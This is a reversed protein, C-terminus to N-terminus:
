SLWCICFYFYLSLSWVPEFGTRVVNARALYRFLLDFCMIFFWRFRQNASRLKTTYLYTAFKLLSWYGYQWLLALNSVIERFLFYFASSSITFLWNTYTPIFVVVSVDADHLILTRIEWQSWFKKKFLKAIWFIM